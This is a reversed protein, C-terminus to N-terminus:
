GMGTGSLTSFFMNSISIWYSRTLSLVSPLMKQRGYRASLGQM